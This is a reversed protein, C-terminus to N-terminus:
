AAQESEKFSAKLRKMFAMFQPRIESFLELNKHTLITEGFLKLGLAFAAADDTAFPGKAQILAVIETLEDHNAATFELSPGDTTQGDRDEVRTVRIQYKHSKM